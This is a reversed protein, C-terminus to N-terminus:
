NMRFTIAIKFRDGVALGPLGLSDPDIRFGEALRAGPEAFEPTSSEVSECTLRRDERITCASVTRGEVRRRMADRPYLRGFDAGSPMESYHSSRAGDRGVMVFDVPVRIVQGAVFQAGQDAAISDVLALAAAGFGYDGTEGEIACDARGSSRFACAILARGEVGAAAAAEPYSTINSLVRRNDPGGETRGCQPRGSWRCATLAHRTAMLQHYTDDALSRDVHRGGEVSLPMEIVSAVNAESRFELPVRVEAGSGSFRWNAAIANAADAFGLNGMPEEIAMCTSEGDATIDCSLVVRGSEGRALAIPPYADALAQADPVTLLRPGDQAGAPAILALTLAAFALARWM